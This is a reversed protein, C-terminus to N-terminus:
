SFKNKILGSTQASGATWECRQQLQGSGTGRRVARGPFEPQVGDARRQDSRGDSGSVEGGHVLSLAGPDASSRGQSLPSPLSPPRSFLVVFLLLTKWEPSGCTEGSSPMM